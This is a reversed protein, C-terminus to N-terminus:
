STGGTVGTVVYCAGTATAAGDDASALVEGAYDGTTEGTLTAYATTSTGSYLSAEGTNTSATPYGVALDGAGSAGDM